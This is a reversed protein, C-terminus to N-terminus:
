VYSYLARTGDRHPPELMSLLYARWTTLRDQDYLCSLQRRFPWSSPVPAAGTRGQSSLTQKSVLSLYIRVRGFALGKRLYYVVLPTLARSPLSAKHGPQPSPPLQIGRPGRLWDGATRRQPRPSTNPRRGVGSEGGEMLSGLFCAIPIPKLQKNLDLKNLSLKCVTFNM